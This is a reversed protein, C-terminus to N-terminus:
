DGKGLGGTDHEVWVAELGFDKYIPDPLPQGLVLSATIEGVAPSSMIGHGVHAVSLFLGDIEPWRDIVARQSHYPRMEGDSTLYSAATVDRYVYYGIRHDIGRLYRADAFGEGDRHGFQRALLTLVISPFRPDKFQEVPWVPDVLHDQVAGNNLAKSNWSYEWGFVAGSRAEPRLHPFPSASIVCPGDEPYEPHRWPTTFSQRPRLVVPIEIGATRGIRRAEAGAAIVVNPSSIVGGPTRVGMIRGAEVQIQVEPVDLLIVAAKAGQAYRYVLAHSDLWGAVPDYKAGTVQPGLWPFRHAIEDANLYEVHALGIRHLHEVDEKLSRAGQETFATYLYGQEKLGLATRAGAGLYEDAHHFVEISRRMMAALCPTPWCTRYNELSANTAGSALQAGKEILVIKIGPAARELAWLAATGAPGGGIVIVDARKPMEDIGPNSFFRQAM